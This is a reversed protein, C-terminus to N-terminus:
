SVEILYAIGKALIGAVTETAKQSAWRFPRAPLRAGHGVTDGDQHSGSWRIPSRMIMRKREIITKNATSLRGLMRRRRKRGSTRTKTASAYPAWPGSPGEQKKAHERQDELLPKRALRWAPRLDPSRLAIRVRTIFGLDVEARVLGDLNM